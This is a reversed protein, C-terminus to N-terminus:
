EPAVWQSDIALQYDYAFNELQASGEWPNGTPRRVEVLLDGNRFIRRAGSGSTVLTGGTLAARLAEEPAYVLMFDALLRAAPLSEPAIGRRVAVAGEHWEITMVLPGSPVTMALAFRSPSTEITAQFRDVRGGHSARVLQVANASPGFPPVEPLTLSVGPAIRQQAPLPPAGAACGAVLLLVPLIFGILRM